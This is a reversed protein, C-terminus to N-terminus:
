RPTSLIAHIRRTRFDEPSEGQQRTVMPISQGPASGGNPATKHQGQQLIGRAADANGTLSIGAANLFKQQIQTANSAYGKRWLHVVADMQDKTVGGAREMWQISKTVENWIAPNKRSMSRMESVAQAKLADYLLMKDPSSEYAKRIPKLAGEADAALVRELGGYVTKEIQDRSAKTVGGELERIRAHLRAVEGDPQAAQPQTGNPTSIGTVAALVAAADNLRRVDEPSRGPIAAQSQLHGIIASGYHTGIKQYAEPNEKALAIPLAEAIQLAGEMVQSEPNNADKGFWYNVFKVAAEPQGSTFDMAMEDMISHTRHWQQVQGAEPRYGIGEQLKAMERNAALIERGRPTTQLVKFEGEWEAKSPQAEPIPAEPVSEENLPNKSLDLEFAEEAESQVPVETQTEVVPAAASEEPVLATSSVEPSPASVSPQLETQPEAAVNLKAAIRDRLTGEQVQIADAIASM